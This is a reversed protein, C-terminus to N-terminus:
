GHGPVALLLFALGLELPYIVNTEDEIRRFEILFRRVLRRRSGRHERLSSLLLLVDDPTRNSESM